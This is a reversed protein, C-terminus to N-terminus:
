YVTASDCIEESVFGNKQILRAYYNIASAQCSGYLKRLVNWITGRLQGDLELSNLWHREGWRSCENWKGHHHCRPQQLTGEDLEVHAPYGMSHNSALNIGNDFSTLNSNLM